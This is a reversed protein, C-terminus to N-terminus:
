EASEIAAKILSDDRQNNWVLVVIIEGDAIAYFVRTHREHLTYIELGQYKVSPDLTGLYPFGSLAEVRLMIDDFVQLATDSGFTTEVYRIINTLDLEASDLWRINKM